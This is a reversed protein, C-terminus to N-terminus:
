MMANLFYRLTGETRRNVNDVHIVVGNSDILFGVVDQKRMREELLGTLSYRERNIDWDDIRRGDPESINFYQTSTVMINVPLKHYNLWWKEFLVSEEKATLPESSGFYGITRTVFSITLAPYSKKLRRISAYTDLCDSVSGTQRRAPGAGPKDSRCGRIFVVLHPEGGEKFEKVKTLSVSTDVSRHEPGLLYTYQLLPAQNGLPLPFPRHSDGAVYSWLYKMFAVYEPAGRKLSDSIQKKNAVILADFVSLTAGRNKRFHLSDLLFEKILTNASEVLGISDGKVNWIRKWFNYRHVLWGRRESEALLGIAENDLEEIMKIPVPRVHQYSLRLLNVASLAKIRHSDPSAKNVPLRAATNADVDKGSLVFAQTWIENLNPDEIDEASFKSMCKQIANRAISSGSRDEAGPVYVATDMFPANNLTHRTIRKFAAICEHPTAYRSFDIDKNAIRFAAQSQLPPCLLFFISFVGMRALVKLENLVFCCIIKRTNKM